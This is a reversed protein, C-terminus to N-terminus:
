KRKLKIKIGFIRVVKHKGENRLSFIKQLLSVQKQKYKCHECFYSPYVDLFIRKGYRFHQGTPPNKDKLFCTAIVSNAGDEPTTDAFAGGMQTKCWGPCCSNVVIGYQQVAAAIKKTMMILASKSPAYGPQFDKFANPDWFEGSGSAVNVIRTGSKMSPLFHRTTLIPAFANIRFIRDLLSIDIDLTKVYSGNPIWDLQAGANNIFLDLYEDQGKVKLYEQYANKVSDEFEVDIIIPIVNAPNGIEKLANMAKELSRCGMYVKFDMSSLKKCIALGIGRTAGTVFATKM